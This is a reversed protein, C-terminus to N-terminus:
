AERWIMVEAYVEYTEDGTGAIDSAVGFGTTNSTLKCFHQLEFAKASAITVRGTVCAWSDQFVNGGCYVSQGDSVILSDTVNFIRVKHQEVIYAPATGEIFYTGAQLTFQNAALSVIGDTDWVETNLVRTRWAGSTFTGGQTGQIQQDRLYAYADFLGGAVAEGSRPVEIASM